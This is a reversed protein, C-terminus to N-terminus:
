DQRLKLVSPEGDASEGLRIRDIGIEMVERGAIWEGERARVLEGLEPIRLLAVRGDHNEGIGVLTWGEQVTDEVVPAAPETDAPDPAALPRRGDRFLPRDTIEAFDARAVEQPADQEATEETAVGQAPPSTDAVVPLDFSGIRWYGFGFAVLLVLLLRLIM